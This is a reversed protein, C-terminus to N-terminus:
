PSPVVPITGTDLCGLDAGRAVSLTIFGPPAGGAVFIAAEWEAPGVYTVPGLSVGPPSSAVSVVDTAEFGIGSITLTYNNPPSFAAIPSPSSSIALVVPPICGPDVPGESNVAFWAATAKQMCCFDCPSLNLLIQASSVPSVPRNLWDVIIMDGTFLPLGYRTAVRGPTQGDPALPVVFSAFRPSFYGDVVTVLADGTPDGAPGRISINALFDDPTSTKTAGSRSWVDVPDILGLETIVQDPRGYVGTLPDFSNPYLLRRQSPTLGEFDKLQRFTLNEPLQDNVDGTLDVTVPISFTRSM